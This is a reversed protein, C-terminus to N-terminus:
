NNLEPISPVFKKPDPKQFDKPFDSDSAPEWVQNRGFVWIQGRVVLNHNDRWLEADYVKGHEPDLIHGDKFKSGEQKLDWIIDMGAYPPNGPVGPAHEIPHDMTDKMQGEDDFSGVIRGYYKGQYEYVAVVSQAQGSKEDITKWFGEIDGARLGTTTALLFLLNLIFLKKM